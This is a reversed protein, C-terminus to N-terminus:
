ECYVFALGTPYVGIKANFPFKKNKLQSAPYVAKQYTGNSTVTLLIVEGDLANEFRVADEVTLEDPDAVGVVLVEQTISGDSAPLFFALFIITCLAFLSGFIEEKKM